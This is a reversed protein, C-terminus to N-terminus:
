GCREFFPTSTNIKTTVTVKMEPTLVTGNPANPLGLKELIKDLLPRFGSFYKEDIKDTHNGFYSKLGNKNKIKDAFLKLRTIENFNFFQDESKDDLLDYLEKHPRRNIIGVKNNNEPYCDVPFYGELYFYDKVENNFSSKETNNYCPRYFLYDIKDAINKDKYEQKITEIDKTATYGTDDSDFLFLIQRIHTNSVLVNSLFNEFTDKTSSASNQALIFVEEFEASLDNSKIAKEICELDSKGEVVVLYKKQFMLLTEQYSVEGGSLENITDVMKSPLQKGDKMFILHGKMWKTMIPDHTSMIVQGKCDRIMNFLDRKKQIDLYADPEDLLILTNKEEVALYKFVLQLVLRSKEGESLQLTMGDYFTNLDYNQRKNVNTINKNKMDPYGYNDCYLALIRLIYHYDPIPNFPILREFEIERLIREWFISEENEEKNKDNFISKSKNSSVIEYDEEEKNKSKHKNNELDKPSVQTELIEYETDKKVKTILDEVENSRIEFKDICSDDKIQLIFSALNWISSDLQLIFIENKKRYSLRSGYKSEGNYIHIVLKPLKDIHIYDKINSNDDKIFNTLLYDIVSSKGSGNLGVIACYNGTGSFDIETGIKICKHDNVFNLKEIRM